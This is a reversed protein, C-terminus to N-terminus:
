TFKLWNRLRGLGWNEWKHCPYRLDVEYISPIFYCICTLYETIILEKTREMKEGLFDPATFLSRILGWSQYVNFSFLLSEVLKKQGWNWTSQHYKCLGTCRNGLKNKSFNIKKKRIEEQKFESSESKRKGTESSTPIKRILEMSHCQM